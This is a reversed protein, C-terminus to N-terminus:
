EPQGLVLILVALPRHFRTMIKELRETIWRDIQELERRTEIKEAKTIRAVRKEKAEYSAIEEKTRDYEASLARLRGRLTKEETLLSTLQDGMNATRKELSALEERVGTPIPPGTALEKDINERLATTKISQKCVPCRDETIHKKIEELLAHLGSHQRRISAIQEQLFEIRSQAEEGETKMAEIRKSLEIHATEISRKSDEIGNLKGRLNAIHDFSKDLSSVLSQQGRLETEGQSLLSIIENPALPKESVPFLNSAVIERALAAEETLLDAETFGLSGSAKTELYASDAKLQSLSVDIRHLQERLSALEAQTANYASEVSQLLSKGPDILLVRSLTKLDEYRDRPRAQVFEAIQEQSLMRARLFTTESNEGATGIISQADALGIDQGDLFAKHQDLDRDITLKGHSTEFVVSVRTPERSEAFRNRMVGGAGVFDRTGSLRRVNGVVTWLVADFFSTKGTGNPGGLVTAHSGLRFVKKKRFGRFAEISVETLTTM